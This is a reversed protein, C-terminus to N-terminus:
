KEQHVTIRVDDILVDGGGAYWFYAHVKDEKDRVHPTLYYYTYNKWKNIEFNKLKVINQTQYGYIEGVGKRRIETVIRALSNSDSVKAKFSIEVWVLEKNSLEKFEKQWDNFYLEGSEEGMKLVKNDAEQVISKGLERTEFNETFWKKETFQYHRTAEEFSLDRNYSLLSALKNKDFNLKLFVAKYSEFTMRDGHILGHKSQYIQFLNLGVFLFLVTLMIIKKTKGINLVYQIFFGLPIALVAYSQVLARQGFSQAYWWCTWSSILYLNFISFLLVSWFYEPKQKKLYYFGLFAFFIIPTYILWGKKFSFLVELLHPSAFDLGEGPNKYSDYVFQGAFTKWYLLQISIVIVAMAIAVFSNRKHNQWIEQYKLKLSRWHSVEWFVPILVSIIETPRCITALGISAGLLISSKLNKNKHWKITSLIIVTYLFFLLAHPMATNITAQHLYNTGCCIVVISLAVARDSLWNLLIKRLIFISTSIYFLCGVAISIQYPASFGNQSFGFWKAIWHGVAYFPSLLVALGSPYRIIWNGTEAKHIQYLTSSVFQERQLNEIISFDQIGLDQYVFTMPLYLYYGFTDWMFPNPWGNLFPYSVLYIAVAFAVFLSIKNKGLQM